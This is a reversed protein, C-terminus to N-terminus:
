CRVGREGLIVRGDGSSECIEMYQEKSTEDVVRYNSTQGVNNM